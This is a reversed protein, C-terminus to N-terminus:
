FGLVGSPNAAIKNTLCIELFFCLKPIKNIPIPGFYTAVKQFLIIMM